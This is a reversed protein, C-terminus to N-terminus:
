GSSLKACGYNYNTISELCVLRVKYGPSPISTELDDGQVFFPSNTTYNSINNCWGGRVSFNVKYNTDSYKLHLNIKNTWKVFVQIKNPNDKSLIVETGSM